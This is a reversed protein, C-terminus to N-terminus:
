ATAPSLYAVLRDLARPWAERWSATVARHAEGPPAEHAVVLETGGDPLATLTFRVTGATGDPYGAHGGTFAAEEPPSWAVWRAEFPLGSNGARTWRMVLAGGAHMESTCADCFWHELHRAEVLAAFVRAPPAAFTRAFTLAGESM